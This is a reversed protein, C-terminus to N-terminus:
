LRELESQSWAKPKESLEIFYFHQSMTVSECNREYKIKFSILNKAM